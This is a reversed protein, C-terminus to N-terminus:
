HMNAPWGAAWQRAQHRHSFAGRVKLLCIQAQTNGPDLKRRHPERPNRPQSTMLMTPKSHLGLAHSLTSPALTCTPWPDPGLSHVMWSLHGLGWGWESGAKYCTLCLIFSVNMLLSRFGARPGYLPHLLGPSKWVGCSNYTHVSPLPAVLSEGNCVALNSPTSTLSLM